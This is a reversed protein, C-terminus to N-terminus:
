NLATCFSSGAVSGPLTIEMSYTRGHELNAATTFNYQYLASVSLEPWSTEIVSDLVEGGRKIVIVANGALIRSNGDNFFTLEVGESTSNCEAKLVSFRSGTQRELDTIDGEAGGRGRESLSSIWIFATGALAITIMLMLIISVIPTVGKKSFEIM